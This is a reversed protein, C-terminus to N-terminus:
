PNVGKAARQRIIKKMEAISVPKKKNTKVIGKLDSLKKTLPQIIIYGNEYRFNLESGTTLHAKERINVPITVQGKSTVISKNM